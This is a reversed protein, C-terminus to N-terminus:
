EPKAFTKEDFKEVPRFEIVEDESVNRGGQIRRTKTPYRIGGAEKYDEYFVEVVIPSNDVAGAPVGAGTPATRNLEYESKLLLGTEKDFYLKQNNKGEASVKIGVAKKEEVKSEGLMSLKYGKGKYLPLQRLPFEAFPEWILRKAREASLESVTGRSSVWAKDGNVIQLTTTKTGGVDRTSESRKRDPLDYSIEITTEVGVVGPRSPPTRKLKLTYSTLKTLKDQGGVAKIANDLIAEAESQEDKAPAAILMITLLPIAAVALMLRKM